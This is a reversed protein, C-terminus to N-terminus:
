AGSPETTPTEDVAPSASASERNARHAQIMRRLQDPKSLKGFHDLLDVHMQVIEIYTRRASDSHLLLISLQEAEEEDLDGDLMKWALEQIFEQDVKGSSHPQRTSM